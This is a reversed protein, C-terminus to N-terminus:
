WIKLYTIHHKIMDNNKEYCPFGVLVEVRSCLQRSVNIRKSDMSTATEGRKAMAEESDVLMSGGDGCEPSARDRGEPSARDGGEEAANEDGGEEGLEADEGDTVVFWRRLSRLYTLVTTSKQLSNREFIM